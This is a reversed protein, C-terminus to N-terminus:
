TLAKLRGTLIPPIAQLINHITTQADLGQRTKLEVYNFTPYEAVNNKCFLIITHANERLSRLIIRSNDKLSDAVDQLSSGPPLIRELLLTNMPCIDASNTVAESVFIYEAVDAQVLDNLSRSNMRSNMSSMILIYFKDM